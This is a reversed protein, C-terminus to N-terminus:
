SVLLKLWFYYFLMTNQKSALSLAAENSLDINSYLGAAAVWQQKASIFVMACKPHRHLMPTFPAIMRKNGV